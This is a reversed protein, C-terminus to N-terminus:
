SFKKQVGRPSKFCNAHGTRSKPSRVLASWASGTGLTFVSTMVGLLAVSDNGWYPLGGFDRASVTAGERSLSETWSQMSELASVQFSTSLPMFRRVRTVLDGREVVRWLEVPPPHVLASSTVSEPM